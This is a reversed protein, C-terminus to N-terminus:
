QLRTSHCCIKISRVELPASGEIRSIIIGNAASNSLLYGDAAYFAKALAAKTAFLLSSQYTKEGGKSTVRIMSIMPGIETYIKRFKSFEKPNDAYKYGELYKPKLKFIDRSVPTNPQAKINEVTQQLQLRITKNVELNHVIVTSITPITIFRKPESPNTPSVFAM